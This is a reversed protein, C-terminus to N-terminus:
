SQAEKIIRAFYELATRTKTKQAGEPDLGRERLYTDFEMQAQRAENEPTKISVEILEEGDPLRWEELTLVHPFTEHKSKWRLTRIPGMVRLEEFDLPWKCLESLFREQDNSFLKAIARSGKAVKDIEGRQQPETLSASCVEDDGVWDAELKFGKLRLWDKPISAAEVRRFKVTSDDAGDKVLKARLIVGAKFLNLDPTDYFYILRVEATDEDVELARVARLEQDARITRKIEVADVAAMTIKNM